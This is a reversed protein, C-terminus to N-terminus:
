NTMNQSPQHLAIRKEADEVIPGSLAGLFAILEEVEQPSLSIPKRETHGEAGHALETHGV